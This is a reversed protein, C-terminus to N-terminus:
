GGGRVDMSFLKFFALRELTTDSVHYVPVRLSRDVGTTSRSHSTSSREVEPSGVVGGVRDHGADIGIVALFDFHNGDASRVSTHVIDKEEEEREDEM